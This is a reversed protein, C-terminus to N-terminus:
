VGRSAYPALIDPKKALESIFFDIFARVKPSMQRNTPWILSLTGFPRMHTTLVPRLQGTDILPRAVYVPLHALGLGDAAALLGADTNNFCVSEPVPVADYPPRFAWPARRGSSPYKFHICAHATLDAPTQPVGTRALYDTSGCVVFHQQGLPRAILRADALDGSRVALDIRDSIIDVVRDELDIDLEIEPYARRFDPLVPILLHHGVIHPVSLRLRGRPRERAQSVMATADHLDDLLRRCRELFVDGEETLGISRTTRHLLRVGLRAELRAVSKAVASSSLGMIRGAVVFSRQEAAHVFSSIGSLNDM